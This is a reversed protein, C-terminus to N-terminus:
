KVALKCGEEHPLHADLVVSPWDCTLRGLGTGPPRGMSMMSCGVPGVTSYGFCLDDLKRSPVTSLRYTFDCLDPKNMTILTMLFM